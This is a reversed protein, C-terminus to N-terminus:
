SIFIYITGKYIILKIKGFVAKKQLSCLLDVTALFYFTLYTKQKTKKRHHATCPDVDVSTCISHVHLYLLAIFLSTTCPLIAVIVAVRGAALM